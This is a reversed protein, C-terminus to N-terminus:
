GGTRNVGKTDEFEEKGKKQSLPPPQEIVKQM